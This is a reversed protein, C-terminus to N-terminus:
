QKSLKALKAKEEALLSEVRARTKEDLSTQLLKSYHEINLKIIGRPSTFEDSMVGMSETTPAPPTHPNSGDRAVEWVAGFKIVILSRSISGPIDRHM